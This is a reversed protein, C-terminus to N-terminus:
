VAAGHEGSRAEGGAWRAKVGAEEQQLADGGEGKRGVQEVEEGGDGVVSRM